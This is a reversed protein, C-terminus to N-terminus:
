EATGAHLNKLKVHFTTGINEKSEVTITGSLKLVTEKVIYLGIGSGEREGSIRFFMDFIKHVYEDAMGIGNDSVQIAVNVQDSIATIKIFRNARSFDQFKIANSILNEVIITFRQLDSYFPKQEEVIIEFSVGEAGKIHRLSNVISHITQELAIHRVHLELRNNKSYSLINKVFEDLKKVSTRIMKSYQLTSAETTEMEILSVLGLVSCLPARLDHSASYVFRDLESNTKQLEENNYILKEEALKRELIDENHEKEKEFLDLAFSIDSAVEKLLAIEEKASFNPEISYLNLTGIITGSKKLPLVLCSHIGHRNAFPEWEQLEPDHEIENCIYSIGSCAVSEQPGAMQFFVNSFSKIEEPPIGKSDILTIKKKKTDFKGIWAMKFKGFELAMTCANRFLTAEDKVRVIHQNIQSIFAYLHKARNTKEDAEKRNTTELSLLLVGEEVPEMSLEFWKKSQDPYIFETELQKKKREVMCQELANFVETNEIGPYREILSSGILEKKTTNEYGAVAQNVYSYRWNYDIVQIGELLSDLTKSFQKDTPIWKNFNAEPEGALKKKTKKM